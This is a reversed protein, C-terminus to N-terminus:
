LDQRNVTVHHVITALTAIGDDDYTITAEDSLAGPAKVDAASTAEVTMPHVSGSVVDPVVTVAGLLPAAALSPRAVSIRPPDTMTTTVAAMPVTVSVPETRRRAVFEDFGPASMLADALTRPRGLDARIEAELDALSPMPRTPPRTTM